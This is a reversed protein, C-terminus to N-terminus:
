CEFIRYQSLIKEVKTGSLTQGKADFTTSQLLKPAQQMLTPSLDTNFAERGEFVLGFAELTERSPAYAQYETQVAFRIPGNEQKVQRYCSRGRKIYPTLLLLVDVGAKSYITRERKARDSVTASQKFNHGNADKSWQYAFLLGSQTAHFAILSGQEVSRKRAAVLIISACASLCYEKVLVTAGSSQVLDAIDLAPSVEGGASTISITTKKQINQGQLYKLMKGDIRGNVHIIGDDSVTCCGHSESCGAGLVLLVFLASFAARIQSKRFKGKLVSWIDSPLDSLDWIRPEM